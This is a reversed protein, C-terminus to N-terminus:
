AQNKQTNLLDKMEFFGTKGKIFEAAMVAGLAFGRRTKAIHIIEIDDM